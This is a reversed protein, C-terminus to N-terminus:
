VARRKRPVFRLRQIFKHIYVSCPGQSLIGYTETDRRFWKTRFRLLVSNPLRRSAIPMFSSTLKDPSKKALLHFRTQLNDIENSSSVSRIRPEFDVSPIKFISYIGMRPINIFLVGEITRWWIWCGLMESIWDLHKDVQLLRLLPAIFSRFRAKRGDLHLISHQEIKVPRM